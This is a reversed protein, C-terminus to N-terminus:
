NAQNSVIKKNLNQLRQDSKPISLNQSNNALLADLKKIRDTFPPHTELEFEIIPDSPPISALTTLVDLLAYPDYGARAALVAGQRDAHYDQKEPLKQLARPLATQISRNLNSHVSSTKVKIQLQKLESPKIGKQLQQLPHRAEVHSIERALLAALQDENEILEYLGSTIAVYGGPLSFSHIASSNLVVFTWPLKPRESQQAVWLGVKNLYIQLEPRDIPPLTGLVGAMLNHGINIENQVVASSETKVKSSAGTKCGSIIGLAILLLILTLFRSHIM